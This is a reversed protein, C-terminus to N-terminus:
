RVRSAGGRVYEEWVDRRPFHRVLMYVSVVALIYFDGAAHGLLFLVLGLIAPIESMATAQISATRMRSIRMSPDAPADRLVLAKLVTSMFVITGAAGFLAIRIMAVNSGPETAPVARRLVEVLAVCIALSVVIAGAVIVAHRRAAEIQASSVEPAESM